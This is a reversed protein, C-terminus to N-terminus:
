LSITEKLFPATCRSEERAQKRDHTGVNRKRSANGFHGKAFEAEIREKTRQGPRQQKGVEAYNQSIVQVSQLRDKIAQINYDDREHYDQNNKIDPTMDAIITLCASFM